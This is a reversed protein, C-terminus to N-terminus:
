SPRSYEVSRASFIRNPSVGYGVCQSGYETANRTGDFSSTLSRPNAFRLDGVPPLAFPIGLFFDQDYEANYRGAYTGNLTTATPPTSCGVTSSISCWLAVAVALLYFSKALVMTAQLVFSPSLNLSPPDRLAATRLKYRM